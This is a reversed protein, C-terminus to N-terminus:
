IPKKKREFMQGKGLIEGRGENSGPVQALSIAWCAFNREVLFFRPENGPVWMTSPSLQSDCSTRQGGFTHPPELSGESVWVCLTFLYVSFFILFLCHPRGGEDERGPMPRHGLAERSALPEGKAGRQGWSWHFYVFHKGDSISKSVLLNYHKELPKLPSGRKGQKSASNASNRLWTQHRGNQWKWVLSVSAPPDQATTRGSSYLSVKEWFLIDM